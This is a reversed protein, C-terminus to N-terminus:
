EGILQSKVNNLAVKAASLESAYKENFVDKLSEEYESVKNQIEIGVSRYKVVIEKDFNNEIELIAAYAEDFATSYATLENNINDETIDLMEEATTYAEESRFLYLDYLASLNTQYHCDTALYSDYLLKDLADGASKLEAIANEYTALTEAHADGMEKILAAIQEKQYIIGARELNSFYMYKFVRTPLAASELRALALAFNTDTRIYEDIMIKPYLKEALLLAKIEDDTLPDFHEIEISVDYKKFTKTLKKEIMKTIVEVYDSDAEGSISLRVTETKSTSLLEAKGILKAIEAATKDPTMNILTEDYLLVEALENLPTVTAVNNKYNVILEVEAKAEIVIRTVTTEPVSPVYTCSALPLASITLVFALLIPLVFKKM